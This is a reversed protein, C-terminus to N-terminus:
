EGRARETRCVKMEQSHKTLREEAASRQRLVLTMLFEAVESIQWLLQKFSVLLQILDFCFFM